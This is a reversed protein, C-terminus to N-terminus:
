QIKLHSILVNIASKIFVAFDFAIDLNVQNDM